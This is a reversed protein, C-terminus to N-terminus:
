DDLKYLDRLIEAEIEPGWKGLAEDRPRGRLVENHERKLVERLHAVASREQAAEIAADEDHPESKKEKTM